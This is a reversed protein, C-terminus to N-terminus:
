SEAIRGALEKAWARALDFDRYDLTKEPSEEGESRAISLMLKRIVFGYQDMNRMGPFLGPHEVNLGPLKEKLKPLVETQLKPREKESAAMLCCIFISHPVKAEITRKALRRADGLWSGARLSGGIVVYDYDQPRKAKGAEALEVEHGAERLEEAIVEAYSTTSGYGSAHGILVKM